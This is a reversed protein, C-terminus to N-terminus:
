SMYAWEIIVRGTALMGADVGAWGDAINLYISHAASSAIALTTAVSNLVLTGDCASVTQGTLINEFTATGSLVAVAGSAVVTGLGLDPTDAANASGTGTIGLAITARKIIINGAPLTYILKGDGKNANTTTILNLNAIDITTIRHSDVGTENAVVTGTAPVVTAAPTAAFAGFPTLIKTGM